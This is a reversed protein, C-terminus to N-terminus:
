PPHERHPQFFKTIRSQGSKVPKLTSIHTSTITPPLSHSISSSTPTTNDINDLLTQTKRTITM